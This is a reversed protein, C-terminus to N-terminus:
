KSAELYMMYRAAAPRIPTYNKVEFGCAIVCALLDAAPIATPHCVKRRQGPPKHAVSAALLLTGGPKTLRYMAGVIDPWDITHCLVNFSWVIDFTGFVDQVHCSRYNCNRMRGLKVFDPQQKQYTGLNPDIATVDTKAMGEFVSMPGCGVDLVTGAIETSFREFYRERLGPKIAYLQARDTWHNHDRVYWLWFSAEYKQATDWADMSGPDRDPESMLDELYFPDDM